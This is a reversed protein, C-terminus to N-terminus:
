NSAPKEIHDIVVVSLSVKTPVLALGLQERVATFISPGENEQTDSTQPEQDQRVWHLKFNYKGNLGTKDVVLQQAETSLLM